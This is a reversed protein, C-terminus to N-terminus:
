EIYEEFIKCADEICDKCSRLPSNGNLGKLEHCFVSGTKNKFKETLEKAIKYTDAKTSKEPLGSSNKLGLLMILGSLAGCVYQMSGMGAGFGEAMKFVTEKDINFMDCYTCVVAQACNMGSKHFEDATSIRSNEM